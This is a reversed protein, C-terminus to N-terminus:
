VVIEIMKLFSDLIQFNIGHHTPAFGNRRTYSCYDSYTTKAEPVLLPRRSWTSIWENFPLINEYYISLSQRMMKRIFLPISM